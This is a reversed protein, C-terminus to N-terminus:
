PLTVGQDKALAAAHAKFQNAFQASATFEAKVGFQWTGTPDSQGELMHKFALLKVQASRLFYQHLGQVEPTKPHIVEAGHVFKEYAPIVKERLVDFTATQSRFNQGVVGYFSRLAERENPSIATLENYVYDHLDKAIYPDKKSHVIAGGAVDPVPATNGVVSFNSPAGTTTAVEKQGPRFVSALSRTSHGTLKWYAVFGLILVFPTGFQIFRRTMLAMRRKAAMYEQIDVDPTEALTSNDLGKELAALPDDAASTTAAHAADRPADAATGGQSPNSGRDETSADNNPSDNM